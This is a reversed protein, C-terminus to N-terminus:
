NILRISGGSWLSYKSMIHCPYAPMSNGCVYVSDMNLVTVMIANIMIIQRKIGISSVAGNREFIVIACSHISTM